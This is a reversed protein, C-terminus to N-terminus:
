ASRRRALKKKCLHERPRWFANGGRYICTQGVIERKKRDIMPFNDRVRRGEKKPKHEVELANSVEATTEVKSSTVM